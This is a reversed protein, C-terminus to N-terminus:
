NNVVKGGFTKLLNDMMNGKEDNKEKTQVDEFSPEKEVFDNVPNTELGAEVVAEVEIKEGFVGHLVKELTARISVDEIRDKHFKYKTALRLKSGILDKPRSAQIVLVLSHNIRKIKAIVESWRSNIDSLSINSNSKVVAEDNTAEPTENPTDKASVSAKNDVVNNSVVTKPRNDSFTSLTKIIAIELPLQIIFSNKIKQKANSFNEIFDIIKNLDLKKSLDIIKTELNEGLNIGVKGDLSPDVSIFMLKRLVENLDDLFIILNVGDNMLKNVFTISKAIDKTTLLEVFKVAEEFTNKPVILEADEKTIKKTSSISVIQGFLSEADRMYGDSRKAVAELVEKDVNLGEKNAIYSLKKVVDEIGIKKFDFRQCRSIITSPVKHIETTCLIFIVHAPPEELVKLLANFASISLMHVEDIIFVKYKSKSPTIRSANIINERVNDVGTHSAADIEVIDISRGEAIDVCNACKGCAEHKGKKLDTCNISKAFVRALTTKGVARPGCFLYAHAIKAAEIEHSLTIKIHNQGVVEDFNQPRYKRYLTSM